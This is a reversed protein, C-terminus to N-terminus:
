LEINRKESAKFYIGVYALSIFSISIFFLLNKSSSVMFKSTPHLAIIWFDKGDFDLSGQLKVIGKVTPVNYIPFAKNYQLSLTLKTGKDIIFIILLHCQLQNISWNFIGMTKYFINKHVYIFKHERDIKKDHINFFVIIYRKISSPRPPTRNCSRKGLLYLLLPFSLCLIVDCNQCCHSKSMTFM